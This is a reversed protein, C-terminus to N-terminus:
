PHSIFHKLTIFIRKAFNDDTFSLCAILVIQMSKSKQDIKMSLKSSITKTFILLRKIVKTNKRNIHWHGNIKMSNMDM